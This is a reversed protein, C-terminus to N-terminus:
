HPMAMPAKPGMTPEVRSSAVSVVPVGRATPATEAVAPSAVQAQADTGVPLVLLAPPLAPLRGGPGAPAVVREPQEARAVAAVSGAVLPWPWGAVTCHPPNATKEMRTPCRRVGEGAAM